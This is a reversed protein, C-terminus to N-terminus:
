RRGRRKRASPPFPARAPRKGAVNRSPAGQPASQALRMALAAARGDESAAESELAKLMALVDGAGVDLLREDDRGLADIRRRLAPELTEHAPSAEDRGPARSKKHRVYAQIARGAEDPSM